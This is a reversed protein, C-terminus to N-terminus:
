SPCLGRTAYVMRTSLGPDRRWNSEADLADGGLRVWNQKEDSGDELLAVLNGLVHEYFADKTTVSAPVYSYEADFGMKSPTQMCIPSLLPWGVGGDDRDAKM